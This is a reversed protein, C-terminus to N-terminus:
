SGPPQYTPSKEMAADVDEATMLPTLTVSVRGSSNIM